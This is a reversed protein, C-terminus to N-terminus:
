LIPAKKLLDTILRLLKPYEMEALEDSFVSIVMDYPETIAPGHQRVIEYIRRRVRNRLIASKHVKKSVVVALRYEQRKQNKNYRLSCLPGRITKGHKYM